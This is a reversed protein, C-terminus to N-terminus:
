TVDKPPDSVFSFSLGNSIIYSAYFFSSKVIWTPYKVVKHVAPLTWNFKKNGLKSRIMWRDVTNGSYLDPSYSACNLHLINTQRRCGTTITSYKKEQFALNNM